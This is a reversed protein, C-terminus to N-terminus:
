AEDDPELQFDSDCALCRVGIHQMDERMQKGVKFSRGCDCEAKWTTKKTDKLKLKLKRFVKLSENIEAITNRYIYRTSEPVTVESYGLTLSRREPGELGMEEALRLFRKNHIKGTCEKIKRTYALGHVAEHILTNFVEDAGRDLNEAVLLVEHVTRIEGDDAQDVWIEKAFHGYLIKARAGGSAVTIVADPVEPHERQIHQWANECATILEVYNSAM